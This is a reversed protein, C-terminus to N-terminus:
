KPAGMLLKMMEIGEEFRAECWQAREPDNAEGQKSLMDAMVGYKIYPVFAGSIEFPICESTVTTHQPVYEVHVTGNASPPPALTITLEDSLESIYSTPTGTTAQWGPSGNDLTFQDVPVLTTFNGSLDEWEICTINILDEPLDYESTGAVAAITADAEICSTKRLFRALRENMFNLVEDETWLSWTMGQDINWELMHAQIESMMNCTTASYSVAPMLKPDYGKNEWWSENAITREAWDTRSPNAAEMLVEVAGARFIPEPDIPEALITVPWSMGDAAGSILVSDLHRRRKEVGQPTDAMLLDFQWMFPVDVGPVQADYTLAFSGFTGTAELNTYVKGLRVYSDMDAAAGATSQKVDVQIQYIKSRLM